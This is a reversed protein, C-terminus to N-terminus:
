DRTLPEFSLSKMAFFAVVQGAVLAVANITRDELPSYPYFDERWAFKAVEIAFWHVTGLSTLALRLWPSSFDIRPRPIAGPYTPGAHGRNLWRFVFYQLGVLSPTALAKFFQANWWWGPQYALWRLVPAERVLAAIGSAELYSTTRVVGVFVLLASVAVSV